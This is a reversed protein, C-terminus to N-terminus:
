WKTNDNKSPNSKKWGNNKWGNSKFGSGRLVYNPKNEKPAIDDKGITQMDTQTPNSSLPESEPFEDMQLGINQKASVKETNSKVTDNMMQEKVADSLIDRVLILAEGVKNAGTGNITGLWPDDCEYNFEGEMAILRDRLDENQVFKLYILDQLVVTRKREWYADGNNQTYTEKIDNFAETVSGYQKGNFELKCPCDNHLFFNEGRMNNVIGRREVREAREEETWFQLFEKNDWYLVERIAKEYNGNVIWGCMSKKFNRILEDDTKANVGEIIFPCNIHKGNEVDYFQTVVMIFDDKYPAKGFTVSFNDDKYSGLYIYKDSGDYSPYTSERDFEWKAGNGEYLGNKIQGHSVKCVDSTHDVRM